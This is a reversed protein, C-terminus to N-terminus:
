AALPPFVDFWDGGLAREAPLYRSALRLGALDPLAAPQLARILARAVHAERQHFHARTAVAAFPRAAAALLSRDVEGYAGPRTAGVFIAGRVRADVILPAALLSAVGAARLSEAGAVADLDGLLLTQEAIGSRGAFGGGLTLAGRPAQGDFGTAARHILGGLLMSSINKTQPM